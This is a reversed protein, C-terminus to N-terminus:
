LLGSKAESAPRLLLYTLTRYIPLYAWGRGASDQYDILWEEQEAKANQLVRCTVSADLVEVCFKLNFKM